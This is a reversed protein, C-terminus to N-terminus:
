KRMARGKRLAVEPLVFGAEKFAGYTMGLYKPGYGRYGDELLYERSQADAFLEQVGGVTHPKERSTLLGGLRSAAALGGTGKWPLYAISTDPGLPSPKQYHRMLKDIAKSELQSVRKESVGLEHAIEGRPKPLGLAAKLITYDRPTIVAETYAQRLARRFKRNDESTRNDELADLLRGFLINSPRNGSM